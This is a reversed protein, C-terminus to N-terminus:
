SVHVRKRELGASIEDALQGESASEASLRLTCLVDHEVVAGDAALVWMRLWYYGHVYVLQANFV